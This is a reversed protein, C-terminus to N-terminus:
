REFVECTFFLYSLVAIGAAMYPLDTRDPTAFNQLSLYLSDGELGELKLKNYENVFGNVLRNPFDPDLVAIHNIFDQVGPAKAVGMELLFTTKTTLGNKQMKERLPIISYDDNAKESSAIIGRCVIELEAHTVQPMEQTLSTKVWDEHSRKWERLMSVTYTLPQADVTDHHNACLLILNEYQDRQEVSFAADGRPGVDSHGVIHAIKGIRPSTKDKETAEQVCVQSCSPFACRAAALGWLLKVDRVNTQRPMKADSSMIDLIRASVNDIRGQKSKQHFYM